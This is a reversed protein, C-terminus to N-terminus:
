KSNRYTLGITGISAILALPLGIWSMITSAVMRPSESNWTYAGATAEGIPLYIGIFNVLIGVCVLVELFLQITSNHQKEKLEPVTFMITKAAWALTMIIILATFFGLYNWDAGVTDQGTIVYFYPDAVGPLDFSLINILNMVLALVMTIIVVISLTTKLQKNKM